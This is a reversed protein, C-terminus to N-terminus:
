GRDARRGALVVVTGPGIMLLGGIVVDGAPGLRLGLLHAALVVLVFCAMGSRTAAAVREVVADSCGFVPRSSDRHGALQSM